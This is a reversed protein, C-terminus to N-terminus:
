RELASECGAGREVSCGVVPLSRARTSSPSKRRHRIPCTSAMTMTTMTITYVPQALQDRYQDNQQRLADNQAQLRDRHAADDALAQQRAEENRQKAAIAQDAKLQTKEEQNRQSVALREKYLAELHHSEAYRKALANQGLRLYQDIIEGDDAQHILEGNGGPCPHDTYALRGAQTCKYINQAGAVPATALLLFAVCLQTTLPTKM